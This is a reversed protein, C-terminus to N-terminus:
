VVIFCLGFLLLYKQCDTKLKEVMDIQKQVCIVINLQIHKVLSYISSFWLMPQAILIKSLIIMNEFVSFQQLFYNRIAKLCRNILEFCSCYTWILKMKAAIKLLGDSNSLAFATANHTRRLDLAVHLARKSKKFLLSAHSESCKKDEFQM